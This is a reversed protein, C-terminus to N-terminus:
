KACNEKSEDESGEGNGLKMLERHRNDFLHELSRFNDLLKNRLERFKVLDDDLDRILAEKTDVVAKTGTLKRLTAESSTKGSASGEPEAENRRNDPIMQRFILDLLMLDINTHATM